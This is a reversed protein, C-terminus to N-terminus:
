PNDKPLKNKKESLSHGKKRIERLGVVSIAGDLLKRIDGMVSPRTHMVVMLKEAIDQPVESQERTPMTQNVERLAEIVEEITPKIKSKDAVSFFDSVEVRLCQALLGISEFRPWTLGKEVAFIAQISLKTERSVDLRTKKARKRYFAINKGVSKRFEPSDM